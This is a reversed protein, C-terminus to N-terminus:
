EKKIGYSLSSFSFHKKEPNKRRLEAYAKTINWDVTKYDETKTMYREDSLLSRTKVKDLTTTDIPPPLEKTCIEFHYETKDGDSIVFHNDGFVVHLGDEMLVFSSEKNAIEDIEDKTSDFRGVVINLNVDDFHTTQTITYHETKIFDEWNFYGKSLSLEKDIFSIVKDIDQYKKKKLSTISENLIEINFYAEENNDHTISIPMWVPKSNENLFYLNLLHVKKPVDYVYHSFRGKYEEENLLGLLNKFDNVAKEYTLIM